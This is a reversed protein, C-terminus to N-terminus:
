TLTRGALSACSQSAKKNVFSTARENGAIKVLAITEVTVITALAIQTAV